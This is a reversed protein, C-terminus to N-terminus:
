GDACRHGGGAGQAPLAVAQGGTNEIRVAANLMYNTSVAFDKVVRIGGPLTKVARVGTPTKTLAFEGDGTLAPANAHTFAPLFARKNLSALEVPGDEKEQHHARPLGEARRIQLGGGHSTFV